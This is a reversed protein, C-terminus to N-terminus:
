KKESKEMKSILIKRAAAKEKFSLSLVSLASLQNPHQPQLYALEHSSNFAIKPRVFSSHTILSHSAWVVVFLLLGFLELQLSHLDKVFLGLSSMEGIDCIGSQWCNDGSLAGHSCKRELSIQAAFDQGWCTTPSAPRWASTFPLLDDLVVAGTPARFSLRSCSHSRGAIM